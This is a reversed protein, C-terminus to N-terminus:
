GRLIIGGLFWGVMIKSSSIILSLEFFFLSVKQNKNSNLKIIIDEQLIPTFHNKPPITKRSLHHM